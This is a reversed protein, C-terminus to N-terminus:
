LDSSGSSCRCVSTMHRDRVSSGRVRAANATIIRLPILWLYIGLAITGLRPALGLLPFGDRLRGSRGVRGEAELLYGLAIFNVIPIAAIVALLLLLSALGFLGRIM